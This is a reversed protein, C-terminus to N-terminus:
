FLNYDLEQMPFGLFGSLAFSDGEQCMKDITAADVWFSGDPQRHRKGGRVWNRGWSNQILIGPRNSKDDCAIGAMAHYWTGCEKLFGFRDRGGRNHTRCNPNFGVGSCFVIPYGNAIADRCDNYSRVLAFSRVPHKRAIPELEDPVGNKGWDRAIQADYQTLDVDGYKKRVLVGYDRLFEACYVGYSGDGQLLRRNHYVTYGIEYRSGAYAAETSAKSVWREALGNKHIQTASLLDVALGYAQGVCDGITQDHPVLEGVAKELYKYLLTVKDKGSGDFAKPTQQSLYPRATRRLYEQTATQNPVWGSYVPSKWNCLSLATPVMSGVLGGVGIKLLDRREM